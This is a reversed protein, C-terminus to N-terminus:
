RDSFPQYWLNLGLDTCPYAVVLYVALAVDWNRVVECGQYM